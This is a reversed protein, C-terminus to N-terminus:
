LLDIAEKLEEIDKHTYIKDTIDKSAHGMIRKICLKNAGASDMLSAFTHRCDHPKHNMELQEMIKKWKEEYYNWYRMQKQEHNAVLFENGKSVRKEIFPMVKKSIPILRNKGASTKIGGRMTRNELNIDAANILLLEGPRLGTYIMILITDIFDMRGVNDWLVQIEEKTFPERTSEDENKGIDIYNSYDKNIIDNAMTYAYLQSFLVKIKRLTGHGKTCNDIVGQLHATRIDVFKLDHLSLAHNYASNYGSQNSRSIKPFKETSWKEFIESFTVTSVEVSYPNKNFDALAQLAIKRSEYYGITQYLQKGEDNWGITKRAIWPKRRNGSLKYVSGYGNPLRM